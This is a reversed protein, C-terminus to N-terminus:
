ATEMMERGGTGHHPLFKWMFHRSITDIASALEIVHIHFIYLLIPLFWCIPTFHILLLTHAILSTM